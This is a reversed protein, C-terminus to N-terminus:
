KARSGKRKLSKRSKRSKLAKRPKRPKRPKIKRPRHRSVVYTHDPSVLFDAGLALRGILMRNLMSGRDVLSVEIRKEVLGLKVRTEVVHRRQRKGTSPRVHSTRVQDAIVPVLRSGDRRDLVVDFKLRGDELVELNHVHLASTRAGTDIKARIREIDWDPLAVWERWGIVTRAAQTM